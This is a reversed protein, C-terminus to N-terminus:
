RVILLSMFLPLFCIVQADSSLASGVLMLGRDGNSVHTGGSDGEVAGPADDLDDAV